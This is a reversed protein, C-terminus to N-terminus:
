EFHRPASPSAEELRRLVERCVTDPRIAVLCEFPKAYHCGAKLCPACPLPIRLVRHVQRYPGTRRPDTPGFLAVVPRELAAAIHMPGTDNTIMLDCARIWEVLESLSTKGTLLLCRDPAGAVIHEGLAADEGAGVIAFRLAANEAALRQVLERFAAAPWRKNPWRAGPHLLLWRQAAIPWKQHLAAQVDPRPPLWTFRWHVPVKLTRLVELYWDVAHTQASPRPVRIDYCAPAGERSDDLGITLQSNAAWAFLGSRALGQLDIVWDFRLARILRLSQAVEHWRSPAAWRRRDFPFIGALDKDGALLPTLEVGLWWYIECTPDHAKLLRLVPLAQVVDGLSSPKLILIKM